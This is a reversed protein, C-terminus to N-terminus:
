GRRRRTRRITPLVAGMVLLALSASGPEPIPDAQFRVNDIDLSVAGPGSYMHTIRASLEEGAFPYDEFTEFQLVFNTFTGKPMQNPSIELSALPFGSSVLSIEVDGTNVGTPVAPDNARGLAVTLTYLTNSQITTLPAATTLEGILTEPVTNTDQDLYIYANQGGQAAGPLAANNGTSGPYDANVPDWVGSDIIGNTTTSHTFTWNPITAPSFTFTNDAVNPNEFSANPVIILVAHAPQAVAVALTIAVLAAIAVVPATRNRRRM